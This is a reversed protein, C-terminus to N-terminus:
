GVLSLVAMALAVAVCSVVGIGVAIRKWCPRGVAVVALM